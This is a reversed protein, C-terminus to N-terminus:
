ITSVNLFNSLVTYKENDFSPITKIYHPTKYIRQEINKIISSVDKEIMFFSVMDYINSMLKFDIIESFNGLRCITFLDSINYLLLPYQIRIEDDKPCNKVLESNQMLYDVDKECLKIITGDNQLYILPM